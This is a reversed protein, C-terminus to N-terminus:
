KFEDKAMAVFITSAVGLPFMGIIAVISGTLAWNWKIRKIAFVGGVIPFVIHIVSLVLLTILITNVIPAVFPLDESPTVAVLLKWADVSVVIVLLGIAGLISFAGSVINLIGAAIPKWTKEVAPEM